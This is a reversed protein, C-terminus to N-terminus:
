IFLSAPFYGAVVTNATLRLPMRRLPPEDPHFRDWNFDIPLWLTLVVLIILTIKM